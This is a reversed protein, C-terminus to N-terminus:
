NYKLVPKFYELERIPWPRFPTEIVKAEYTWNIEEATKAEIVIVYITERLVQRLGNVVREFILNGGTKKNHEDVAYKGVEQVRPDNIDKIPVPAGLAESSM